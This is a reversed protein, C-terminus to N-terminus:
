VGAEHTRLWERVRVLDDETDISVKPWGQYRPDAPLAAVQFHRRMWPTVHERDLGVTRADALRLAERAFVECDLGDPWAGRATDIWAYGSRTRHYLDLVQACAQPDLLPCDGTVRMIPDGPLTQVCQLMRSLVDQEDVGAAGYVACRQAIAEALIPADVATTAVVVDGVGPIQLARDVVHRIVPQGALDALMKRPFRRSGLRAQIVCLCSM